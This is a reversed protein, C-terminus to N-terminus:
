LLRSSLGQVEIYAGAGPNGHPIQWSRAIGIEGRYEATIVKLVDELRASGARVHRRKSRGASAGAGSRSRVPRSARSVLALNHVHYHNRGPSPAAITRLRGGGADMPYARRTAM